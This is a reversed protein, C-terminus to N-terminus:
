QSAIRLTLDGRYRPREGALNEVYQRPIVLPVRESAGAAVDVPGSSAILSDGILAEVVVSRATSGGDNLVEADIEVERERGSFGGAERVSLAPAKERETREQAERREREQREDAAGGRRRTV